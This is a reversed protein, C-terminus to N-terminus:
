TVAKIISMYSFINITCLRDAHVLCTKDKGFLGIAVHGQVSLQVVWNSLRSSADHKCDAAQIYMSVQYTFQMKPMM